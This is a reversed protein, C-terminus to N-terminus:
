SQRKALSDGPPIFMSLFQTTTREMYYQRTQRDRLTVRGDASYFLGLQHWFTDSPSTCDAYLWLGVPVFESWM